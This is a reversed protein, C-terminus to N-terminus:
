ELRRTRAVCRLAENVAGEPADELVRRVVDPLVHRYLKRGIEHRESWTPDDSGHAIPLTTRAAEVLLDALETGTMMQGAAGAVAEQVPTPIDAADAVQALLTERDPLQFTAGTRIDYAVHSQFTRMAEHHAESDVMVEKLLQGRTKPDRAEKASEADLLTAHVMAGRNLLRALGGAASDIGSDDVPFAALDLTQGVAASCWGQVAFPAANLYLLVSGDRFTVDGSIRFSSHQSLWGQLAERDGTFTHNSTEPM